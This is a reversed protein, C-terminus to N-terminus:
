KEKTCIWQFISNINIYIENKNAKDTHTCVMVLTSILPCGTLGYLHQTDWQLASAQQTCSMQKTLSEKCARASGAGRKRGLCLPPTPMHGGSGTTVRVQAAHPWVADKRPLHKVLAASVHHESKWNKLQEAGRMHEECVTKLMRVQWHGPYSQFTPTGWFGSSKQLSRGKWCKSRKQEAATRPKGRHKMRPRLCDRWLRM